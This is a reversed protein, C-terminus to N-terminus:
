TNWIKWTQLFFHFKKKKKLIVLFFNNLSRIQVRFCFIIKKKFSVIYDDYNFQTTHLLSKKNNEKKKDRSKSAQNFTCLVEAWISLTCVQSM